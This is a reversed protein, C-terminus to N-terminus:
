GSRRRAGLFEAKSGTPSHMHTANYSARGPEAAMVECEKMGGFAEVEKSPGYGVITSSSPPPFKRFLKSLSTLCLRRFFTSM